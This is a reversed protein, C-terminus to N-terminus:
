NAAGAGGSAKRQSVRSIAVSLGDITIPKTAFEDMGAEFCQEKTERLANATLAIIPTSRVQGAEELERIERTAEFGTKVPMQCDMLILDFGGDKAHALMLDVGQQGDGACVANYGLKALMAKIVIQNVLNDEVVLARKAMKSVVRAAIPAESLSPRERLVKSLQSLQIPRTMMYPKVARELETLQSFGLTEDPRVIFVFYAGAAKIAELTLQRESEPLQLWHRREAFIVSKSTLKQKRDERWPVIDMMETSISKWYYDLTGLLDGDSLVAYISDWFRIPGSPRPNEPEMSVELALELSFTSGQAEVSRVSVTAGMAKALSSTISLGLGSGGYRRRDSLDVQTFSDFIKSLKDEPIGVGTDAIELVIRDVPVGDKEERSKKFLHLKIQGTPTFKIANGLLNNLIQRLRTEDGVHRGGLRPDIRVDLELGKAFIAPALAQGVDDVAARLDFPRNELVLKGSEIRSFELIDSILSLLFGGSKHIIDLQQLQSEPLESHRMVDIMGIIGNLPTRLEHSMNALFESKARSLQRLEEQKSREVDLLAKSKEIADAVNLKMQDFYFYCSMSGSAGDLVMQQIQGVPISLNGEIARPPTLSLEPFVLRLKQLTVGSAINLVEQFTDIIESRKELFLAERSKVDSDEVEFGMLRLAETRRIGILFEGYIQGTFLVSFFLDERSNLTATEAEPREETRIDLLDQLVARVSRGYTRCSERSDIEVTRQNM